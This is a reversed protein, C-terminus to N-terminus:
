FKSIKVDASLGPKLEIESEKELSIKIPLGKETLSSGLSLVKGKWIQKPYASLRIEVSNGPKVSSLNQEPIHAEIWTHTPDGLLYIAEGEKVTEGVEKLRKLILSEKCSILTMADIQAALSSIDAELSTFIWKSEDVKAQAEQLEALLHDVREQTAQGMTYDARASLYAQMAQDYAVKKRHFQIRYTELAAEAQEKRAKLIDTALSGLKEGKVVKDGEERCLETIKGGCGAGLALTQIQVTATDIHLYPRIALGWYLLLSSIAVSLGLFTKRFM